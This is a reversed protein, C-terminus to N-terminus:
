GVAPGDDLATTRSPLDELLKIFSTEVLRNEEECGLVIDELRAGPPVLKPSRFCILCFFSSFDDPRILERLWMVLTSASFILFDLGEEVLEAIGGM